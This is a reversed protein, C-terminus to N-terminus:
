CVEDESALGSPKMIGIQYLTSLIKKNKKIKRHRLLEKNFKQSYLNRM